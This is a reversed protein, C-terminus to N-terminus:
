NLPTMKSRLSAPVDELCVIKLGSDGATAATQPSLNVTVEEPLTWMAGTLPDVILLGALGGFGFNGFYWGNVTSKLEQKYEAHGEKTFTLNYKGPQFYPNGKRLEATFPTTGESVTEGKGDVISVKAGSPNSNFTVKQHTGSVISACGTTLCLLGGALTLYPFARKM